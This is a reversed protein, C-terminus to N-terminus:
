QNFFLRFGFVELDGQVFDLESARKFGLREYMSWAIKMAKTSHIIVQPHGAKKALDLCKNTLLKAIGKGRADPNVALLRFGSARLEQPAIGGSGYYTM